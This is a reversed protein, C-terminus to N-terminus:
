NFYRIKSLKKKFSSAISIWSSFSTKEPDIEYIKLCLIIFSYVVDILLLTDSQVFFDHYKGLNKIEFYKCFRKAHTYDADTINEMNLHSYFDEEPLSTENFKELDDMYEYPHVGKRLM